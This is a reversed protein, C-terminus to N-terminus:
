LSLHWRNAINVKISVKLYEMNIMQQFVKSSKKIMLTKKSEAWHIFLYTFRKRTHQQNQQLAETRSNLHQSNIEM